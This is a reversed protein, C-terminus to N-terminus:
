PDASEVSAPPPSARQAAADRSLDRLAEAVVARPVIFDGTHPPAKPDPRWARAIKEFAAAKAADRPQPGTYPEVNFTRDSM